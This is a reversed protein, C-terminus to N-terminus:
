YPVEELLLSRKVTTYYSFFRSSDPSMISANEGSGGLGSVCTLSCM